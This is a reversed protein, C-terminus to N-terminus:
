PHAGSKRPEVYALVRRRPYAGIGVRHGHNGSIIIPNRARDFAVAVGVHGGGRRGLVVIAGVHPWTRPLRLFSRAENSGTGRLGLEHLKMNLYRACWVHRWGTPNRGLDARMAAILSAMRTAARSETKIAAEGIAVSDRDVLDDRTRPDSCGHLGCTVVETMAVSGSIVVPKPKADVAAGSLLCFGAAVAILSRRM